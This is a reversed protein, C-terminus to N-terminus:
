KGHINYLRGSSPWVRGFCTASSLQIHLKRFTTNADVIFVSM